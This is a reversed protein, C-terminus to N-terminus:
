HYSTALRSVLGLRNISIHYGQYTDPRRQCAMGSGSTRRRFRVLFLRAVVAYSQPAARHAIWHLAACSIRRIWEPGIM